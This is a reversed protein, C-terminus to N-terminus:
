PCKVCLKLTQRQKWKLMYTNQIIPNCQPSTQLQKVSFVATEFFWATVPQLCSEHSCVGCAWVESGFHPCLSIYLVSISFPLVPVLCLTGASVSVCVRPRYTIVSDSWKLIPEHQKLLPFGAWCKGKIWQWIMWKTLILIKWINGWPSSIM